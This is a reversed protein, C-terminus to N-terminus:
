TGATWTPVAGIVLTNAIGVAEGLGNVEPSGTRTAATILLVDGTTAGGDPSKFTIRYQLPTDKDAELQTMAGRTYNQKFTWDGLDSLGAIYTRIATANDLSTVEAKDTTQEPITFETVDPIPTWTTGDPSREVTAGYFIIEGAM